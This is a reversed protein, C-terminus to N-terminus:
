VLRATDIKEISPQKKFDQRPSGRTYLGDSRQIGRSRLPSGVSSAKTTPSPVTRIVQQTVQGGVNIAPLTTISTMNPSKWIKLNVFGLYLKSKKIVAVM